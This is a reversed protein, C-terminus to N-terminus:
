ITEESSSCLKLLDVYIQLCLTDNQWPPGEKQGEDYQVKWVGRSFLKQLFNGFKNKM